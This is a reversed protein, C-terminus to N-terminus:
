VILAQNGQIVNEMYVTRSVKGDAPLYWVFTRKKLQEQVRKAKNFGLYWERMQIHSRYGNM